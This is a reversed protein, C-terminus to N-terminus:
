SCCFLQKCALQLGWRAIRLPPLTEQAAELADQAAKLARLAMLKDHRARSLQDAAGRMDNLM